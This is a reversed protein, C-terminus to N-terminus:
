QRRSTRDAAVLAVLQHLKGVSHEWDSDLGSITHQTAVSRQKILDDTSRLLFEFDSQVEQALDRVETSPHTVGMFLLPGRAVKWRVYLEAVALAPSSYERLEGGIVFAPRADLAVSIFESLGRQADERYKDRRERQHQRGTVNATALVGALAAVPSAVVSVLSILNADM